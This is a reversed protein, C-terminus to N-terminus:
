GKAEGFKGYEKDFALKITGIPGNRQKALIVEVINQEDTEKQYYDERYLFAIVDADQEIQGSVRLDSLIPHKDQRSEVGRSLQSLAMVVVNLERAMIKLMRSIESIEAQRNARHKPDGMILQLYDIVVLMKKEEGYQSRLKRVRSWIYVMDMGGKDFIHLQTKSIRGMAKTFKRWDEDAFNRRPNRMKVSSIGGTNCLARKLLQKKSMELSFMIAVHQVAAHLALNIAFATKGVSPRAGVVIFDSDQFGGTLYDLQKFGSGIGTIEGLDIECDDYLSVLSPSIHGDEEDVLSNELMILEQIGDRLTTHVNGNQVENQIKGTVKLMQRKQAYKKVIDEYYDFNVTSPVSTSIETIYSIGGVDELHDPGIEEVISIIDLPKGQENLKTIATFLIQLRKMYFQKSTITCEEVLKPELFLTGILAEEAAQNFLPHQGM